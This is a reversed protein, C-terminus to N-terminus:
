HPFGCGQAQRLSHPPTLGGRNIRRLFSWAPLRPASSFIRHGKSARRLWEKHLYLYVEETVIDGDVPEKERTGSPGNGEKRLFM